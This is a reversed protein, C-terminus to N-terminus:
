LGKTTVIRLRRVPPAVPAPVLGQDILGAEVIALAREVDALTRYEVSRGEHSVRLYGNGLAKALADRQAITYVAM